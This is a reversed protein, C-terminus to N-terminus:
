ECCRHYSGGLCNSNGVGSVAYCFNHLYVGEPDVVLECGNRTCTYGCYLGVQQSCDGEIPAPLNSATTIFLVSAVVFVRRLFRM